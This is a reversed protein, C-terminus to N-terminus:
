SRVLRDSRDIEVVILEINTSTIIVGFIILQHILEPQVSHNILGEASTSKHCYKFACAVAEMFLCLAQEVLLLHRAIQVVQKVVLVHHLTM